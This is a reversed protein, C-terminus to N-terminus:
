TWGQAFTFLLDNDKWVLFLPWKPPFPFFILCYFNGAQEEQGAVQRASPTFQGIGQDQGVDSFPICVLERMYSIPKMLGCDRGQEYLNAM